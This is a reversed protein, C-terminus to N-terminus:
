NGIKKLSEIDFYSQNTLMLVLKDDQMNSCLHLPTRKRRDLSTPNAGAALLKDALVIAATRCAIHLPTDLERNVCNPEAGVALLQSLIKASGAKVAEHLPTSGKSSIENPNVRAALNRRLGGPNSAAVAECLTDITWLQDSKHSDMVAVMGKPVPMTYNLERGGAATPAISPVFSMGSANSSRRAVAPSLQSDQEGVNRMSPERSATAVSLQRPKVGSSAASLLPRGTATITKGIAAMRSEFDILLNVAAQHNGIRALDLPRKGAVNRDEVLQRASPDTLLVAVAASAGFEAATHLPTNGDVDRLKPLSFHTVAASTREAELMSQLLGALDGGAALHLPSLLTLPVRPALSCHYRLFVPGLDHALGPRTLAFVIPTGYDEAERSGGPFPTDPNAGADLLPTLAEYWGALLVRHLPTLSDLDGVNPNAKLALAEGLKVLDHSEVARLLRADAEAVRIQSFDVRGRQAYDAVTKGYADSGTEAAGSALLVKCTEAKGNKAAMMLATRKVSDATNITTRAGLSLLKRVLPAPHTAAALQLPTQQQASVAAVDGAKGMECLLDIIDARGRAAAEHMATWGDIAVNGGDPQAAATVLYSRLLDLKGTRVALIVAPEPVALREAAEKHGGVSAFMCPLMGNEGRLRKNAGAALLLEICEVTGEFASHHLPTHAHMDRYNPNAGQHLLERVATTSGTNAAYQLPTSLEDDAADVAAGALVLEGILTANGSLAAEHLPTAGISSRAMVQAQSRLLALSLALLGLNAALHLPTNRALNGASVPAGLKLLEEVVALHNGSAAAHLPSNGDEDFCTVRAGARALVQICELHGKVAALALPSQGADNPVDAYGGISLLHHLLDARGADAAEHVASWGSGDRANVVEKRLRGHGVAEIQADLEKRDEGRAALLLGSRGLERQRGAALAAQAIPQRYRPFLELVRMFSIRALSFLACGDSGVKASAFRRVPKVLAADGLFQGPHCVSIERADAGFGFVMTVSGEVVLVIQDDLDGEKLLLTDKNAVIPDMQNVLCDIFGADCPSLMPIRAVAERM